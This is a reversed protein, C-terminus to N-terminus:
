LSIGRQEVFGPQKSALDRAVEDVSDCFKKVQFPKVVFSVTRIYM